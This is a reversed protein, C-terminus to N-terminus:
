IKAFEDEFNWIPANRLYIHRHGSDQIWFPRFEFNQKLRKGTAYFTMDILYSTFNEKKKRESSMNENIVHLYRLNILNKLILEHEKVLKSPYLIVNTKLVGIVQNQIIEIAQRLKEPAIDCEIEINQEKDQRLDSIASYLHEKKISIANDSKAIKIIESLIVLFDRPVGGTAVVTYNLVEDNSFLARLDTTSLGLDPQLNSTIRLLFEILNQFDYLEKDLRIPSFDDKISFDVKGDKNLKTRNPLSCIKSCFSDNKSNKYIDHFFQIVDPQYDWNILYFDDLYIVIRKDSLKNFESAIEAFVFILEDIKDQKSITKEYKFSENLIKDTKLERSAVHSASIVSELSSDITLLKVPVKGKATLKAIAKLELNNVIKKSETKTSTSKIDIKIPEDPLESIIEILHETKKLTGILFNYEDLKTIDDSKFISQIKKIFGRKEFDQNLVFYDTYRIIHSKLKQAFQLLIHLIIKDSKWERFIQCDIPLIFNKSDEKITSLLLTTKGSGRRGLILHNNPIKIKGLNNLPDLYQINDDNDYNVVKRRRVKEIVEILKILRAENLNM